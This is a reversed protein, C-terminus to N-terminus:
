ELKIVKKLNLNEEKKSFDSSCYGFVDKYMEARERADQLANKLSENFERLASILEYCDSLEKQQREIIKITQSLLSKRQHEQATGTGQVEKSNKTNQM